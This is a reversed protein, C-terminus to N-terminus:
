GGRIERVVAAVAEPSAGAVRANPRGGALFGVILVIEDPRPADPLWVPLTDM